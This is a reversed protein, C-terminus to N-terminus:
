CVDVGPTLETWDCRLLNNKYSSSSRRYLVDWFTSSELLWPQSFSLDQTRRYSVSNFVVYRALALALAARIKDLGKCVYM